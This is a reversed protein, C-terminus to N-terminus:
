LVLLTGLHSVHRSRIMPVRMVMTPAMMVMVVLGFHLGFLGVILPVILGVHLFNPKSPAMATIDQRSAAHM